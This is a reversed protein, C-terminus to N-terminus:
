IVEDQAKTFNEWFEEPNTIGIKYLWKMANNKKLRKTKKKVKPKPIIKDIKIGEYEKLNNKIMFDFLALEFKSKQQKLEKICKNLRAIEKNIQQINTAVSSM